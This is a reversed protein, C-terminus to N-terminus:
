LSVKGPDIRLMRATLLHGIHPVGQQCLTFEDANLKISKGQLQEPLKGDGNSQEVMM